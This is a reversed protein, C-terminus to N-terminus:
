TLPNRSCSFLFDVLSCLQSSHKFVVFFSLSVSGVGTVCVSERGRERKIEEGTHTGHMRSVKLRGESLQESRKLRADVRKQVDRQLRRHFDKFMTSGGSLVVNQLCVSVCM